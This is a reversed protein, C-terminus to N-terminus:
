YIEPKKRTILGVIIGLIVVGVFYWGGSKLFLSIGTFLDSMVSASFWYGFGEGAM